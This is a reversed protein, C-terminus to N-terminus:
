KDLAMSQAELGLDVTVPIHLYAVL